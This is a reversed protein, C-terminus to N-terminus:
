LILPIEIKFEIGKGPSGYVEITGNLKKRVINYVIYMGLGSGGKGRKTTYFPEFMKKKQEENIGKGNDKYIIIIGIDEVFVEIDIEGEEKDEFGHILSNMILNTIVQSFDGPYSEIELEDECKFNINHKTRKLKPKLSYFIQEMYTKMNFKRKQESTQDVAIQKFSYILEDAKRINDIIISASDVADKLFDDFEQKSLNQETYLKNLEDTKEKLFSAATLCVGIPTNVEHAVGAVLGGLSALKETEILQKQALKLETISNELEITREKVMKELNENMSIIKDLMTNFANGLIEVEYGDKIYARINLNNESIEQATKVLEYIPKEIKKSMNAIFKFMTIIILILIIPIIILINKMFEKEKTTDYLFIIKINNHKMFDIESKKYITSALKFEKEIKKRELDILMEKTLNKISTGIIKDNYVILIEGKSDEKIIDAFIDNVFFGATIVGIITENDYSSFVTEASIYLLGDKTKVINNKIKKKNQFIDNLYKEDKDNEFFTKPKFNKGLSFMDTDHVSSYTIKMEESLGLIYNIIVNSKGMEISKLIKIEKKAIEIFSNIKINNSKINKEVIRKEAEINKNINEDMYKYLLFIIVFFLLIIPIAAALVFKELKKHITNKKKQM